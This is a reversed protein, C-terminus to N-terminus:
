KEKKMLDAIYLIDQVLYAAEDEGIDGIPEVSILREKMSEYIIQINEPLDNVDINSLYERYAAYVSKRKSDTELSVLKAAKSFNESVDAM